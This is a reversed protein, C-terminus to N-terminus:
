FIGFIKLQSVGTAFSRYMRIPGIHDIGVGWAHVGRCCNWNIKATYSNFSWSSRVPNSNHRPCSWFSGITIWPNSCADDSSGFSYHVALLSVKLHSGHEEPINHPSSNYNDANWSFRCTGNELYLCHSRYTTGFRRYGVVLVCQTVDCFFVSRM